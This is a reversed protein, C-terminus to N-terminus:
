KTEKVKDLVFFLLFKIVDVGQCIEPLLNNLTLEAIQLNSHEM